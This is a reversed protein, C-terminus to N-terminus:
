DRPRIEPVGHGTDRLATLCAGYLTTNRHEDVGHLAFVPLPEAANTSQAANRIGEYNGLDLMVGDGETLRGCWKIRNAFFTLKPLSAALRLEELLALIWSLTSLVGEKLADYLSFDDLWAPLNDRLESFWPEVCALFSDMSNCGDQTTSTLQMVGDPTFFVYLSDSDAHM